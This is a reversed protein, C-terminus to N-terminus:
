LSSNSLSVLPVMNTRDKMSCLLLVSILILHLPLPLFVPHRCKATSLFVGPIPITPLHPALVRFFLSLLILHSDFCQLLIPPILPLLWHFSCSSNSEWLLAIICCGGPFPFVCPEVIPFLALVLFTTRWFTFLDKNVSSWSFFLQKM